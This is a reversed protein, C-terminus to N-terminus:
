KLPSGCDNCFKSGVANLGGCSDCIVINKMDSIELALAEAERVLETIHDCKDRIPGEIDEDSFEEYVFKGLDAYAENIKGEVSKIAYSLKMKGVFAEGQNKADKAFKGASTSMKKAGFKVTDLIDDISFDSM